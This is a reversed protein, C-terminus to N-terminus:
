FLPTDSAADGESAPESPATPPGEHRALRLRAADLDEELRSVQKRVQRNTIRIKIGDILGIACAFAMGFLASAAIVAGMPVPGIAPWLVLNITVDGPNYIGVILLIIIFISVLLGILINM